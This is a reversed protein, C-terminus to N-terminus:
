DGKIETWIRDYETLADGVDEVRHSAALIDAPTNTIESAMYAEYLEPQNERAYELAAANAITYPYDRMPLWAVDGQLLYNIWAYAADVHPADTPIAFGDEFLISGESPFVYTMTEVEQQALAAEGNYVVGVQADGAILATKPSDSDWIRVQTDAFERLKAEAEALEAPDTTNVSYGLALLTMGIIVRTDDVAVIQDAYEPKWLDAWSTPPTSVTAANYVIAQTGLQFPSIYDTLGEYVPLYEPNINGSNPIRSRDLQQLMGRRVMVSIIYDSPHIIDYGTAGAALKAFLEENSSYEEVNVDIGYVLGFCEIVDGPIYETWLFLNIEASTVEMRPQPQPCAFGSSTTMPATGTCGALALSLLLAGNMTLRGPGFGSANM